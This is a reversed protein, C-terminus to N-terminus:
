RTILVDNPHQAYWAFWFSYIVAAREQGAAPQTGSELRTIPHVRWQGETKVIVCNTKYPEKGKPPLPSVPFALQDTYYYDEPLMLHKEYRDKDMPNRRVVQTDPHRGSWDQWTTMECPLVPLTEGRGGAPGSIARMGLQSWLSSSKANPQQDYMVLNSNYLLGSFGFDLVKGGVRRDFVVVSDCPPSYTVAIPVGALEDQIIEHVNLIQIPYARTQGGIEVGVVRDSPVLYKDRPDQKRQEDLQPLTIFEPRNLTKKGDRPMGSGVLYPRDVTCNSLDFGYTAPNRGDGVPRNAFARVVYPVSWGATVLAVVGALVLVWGGEKFTLLKRPPGSPSSHINNM